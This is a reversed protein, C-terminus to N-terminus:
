AEARRAECVAVAEALTPLGNEDASVFTLSDYAHETGANAIEFFAPIYDGAEPGDDDGYGPAHIVAFGNGIVHAVAALIGNKFEVVAGVKPAAFDIDEGSLHRAKAYNWAENWLASDAIARREEEPDDAIHQGTAADYHTEFSGSPERGMILAFAEAMDMNSDRTDHSACCLSAPGDRFNDLAMRTWQDPTMDNQLIRSFAEGIMAVQIARWDDSEALTAVDNTILQGDMTMAEFTLGFRASGPFEREEPDAYDTWVALGLLPCTFRPSMDQRWSTDVFGAPIAPMTSPDFDPFETRYSM